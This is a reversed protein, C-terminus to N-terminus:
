DLLMAQLQSESGEAFLALLKNLICNWTRPVGELPRGTPLVSRDAILRASNKLEVAVFDRDLGLNSTLKKVFERKEEPVAIKYLDSATRALELFKELRDLTDYQGSELDAIKQKLGAEEFLLGSRREELMAKDIAGDIYADTVRALRDRVQTLKLRFAGLEEKRWTEQNARAETIWQRAYSLEEEDMRLPALVNVIAGDIREERATKTECGRTHCRYYAHGKQLEAILNYGCRQCRILKRFVFDHRSLRPVTRGHLINQVTDFLQKGVIPQHIGPFVERTKKIRILGMYFPNNLITSIGNLTVRRGARNRLGLVYMEEVLRPLSYNITAYLQFAQLILPAKAPDRDKAQGGGRDLYGVPAAIPYLGQKLRGYFGKKTEERLNRIFDAAVVAQIDASLRGGRTKLDLSENAFHVEIGTDILEGLDAWDKLNRAGRDIKHIIVGRAHGRRLLRIMASFIPRGRKAATEQEEFFRSIQIGNKEAYRQIADQQEKLSVGHEGQRATSVRVYSFCQKEM